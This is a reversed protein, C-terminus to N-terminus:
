TTFIKLTNKAFTILQEKTAISKMTNALVSIVWVNDKTYGKTSDIRDISPKNWRYKNGMVLPIGLLPCVEPIPVDDITITWEYGRKLANHYAGNFRTKWDYLRRESSRLKEKERYEKKQRYEVDYKYKCKPCQNHRGDKTKKNKHFYEIPYSIRCKSCIKDM